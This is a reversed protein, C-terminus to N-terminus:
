MIGLYNKMSDDKFKTLVKIRGQPYKTMIVKIMKAGKNEIKEPDTIVIVHIKSSKPWQAEERWSGQDGRVM